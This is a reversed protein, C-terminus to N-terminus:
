ARADPRTRRCIASSYTADTGSDGPTFAGVSEFAVYRGNGSIAPADNDANVETGNSKLSVRVTTPPSAWASAVWGAVAVLGVM